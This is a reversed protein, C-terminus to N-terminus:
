ADNLVIGFFSLSGDGPSAPVFSSFLLSGDAGYYRILTSSHRNGRKEGPGSGDPLDVDAFVAGFGRSAAPIGGRSGPVFFQVETVNSGVPSFFRVPSFTKFIGAYSLNGFIDALGSAPAQVFGSGPTTFRGGRSNLFVDFPTPGPSTATSGGGDWNIERRGALTGPTSGNNVGGLAARFQDVVGQISAANPGAAQFVAAQIRDASGGDPVGAAAAPIISTLLATACLLITHVVKTM